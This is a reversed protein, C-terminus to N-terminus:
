RWGDLIYRFNPPLLWTYSENFSQTGRSMKEWTYSSADFPQTGRSANEYFYVLRRTTSGNPDTVSVLNDVPDYSYTTVRGQADTLSVKNGSVSVFSVVNGSPDTGARVTGLVDHYYATIITSRGNGATVSLRIGDDTMVGGLHAYLTPVLTPNNRDYTYRMMKVYPDTLLMPNNGVYPYHAMSGPPDSVLSWRGVSPDYACSGVYIPSETGAKPTDALFVAFYIGQVNLSGTNHITWKSTYVGGTYFAKLDRVKVHWQYGTFGAAGLSKDAYTEVHWDSWSGGNTHLPIAIGFGTGPSLHLPLGAVTKVSYPQEDALPSTTHPSTRVDRESTRLGLGVAGALVVLAAVIAYSALKGLPPMVVRPIPFRPVTTTIAPRLRERATTAISSAVKANLSAVVEPPPQLWLGQRQEEVYQAVEALDHDLGIPPTTNRERKLRECYLDLLDAQTNRFM